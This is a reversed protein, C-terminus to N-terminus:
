ELYLKNGKSKLSHGHLLHQFTDFVVYLIIHVTCTALAYESNDGAQM